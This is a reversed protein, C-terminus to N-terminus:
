PYHNSVDAVKPANLRKYISGKKSEPTKKTARKSNHLPHRFFDPSVM